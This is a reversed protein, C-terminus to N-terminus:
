TIVVYDCKHKSIDCVRDARFLVRLLDDLFITDAKFDFRNVGRKFDCHIRIPMTNFAVTKHDLTLSSNVIARDLGTLHCTSSIMM